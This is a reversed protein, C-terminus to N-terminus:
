MKQLKFLIVFNVIDFYKLSKVTMNDVKLYIKSKQLKFIITQVKFM